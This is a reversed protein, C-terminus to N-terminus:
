QRHMWRWASWFGIAAGLMLLPRPSSIGTDFTRDLWRGSSCASCCRSSSRGASCASRASASASRPSPITAVRADRARRRAARGRGHRDEDNDPPRRDHARGGTSRLRNAGDSSAGPRLYRMLSACPVPMCVRRSSARKGTPMPRPPACRRSRPRSRRSTTAWCARAAPSRRRRRGDARRARRRAGRLLATAGDGSRWRVVSAPLVTLLDAHGPLIGFGGSEDEARVRAVDDRDVLVTAPTTITLHLADTM